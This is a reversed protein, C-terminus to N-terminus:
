LVASESVNERHRPPYFVINLEGYHLDTLELTRGSSRLLTLPIM